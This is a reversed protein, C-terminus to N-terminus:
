PTFPFEARYEDVSSKLRIIARWDSIKDMSLPLMAAAAWKEPVVLNESKDPILLIIPIEINEDMEEFIVSISEIGEFDFGTATLNMLYENNKEEGAKKITFSIRQFNGQKVISASCIALSSNCAPNAGLKIMRDSNEDLFDSFDMVFVMATLIVISMALARLYKNEKIKTLWKYIM